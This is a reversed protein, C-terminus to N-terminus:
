ATPMSKIYLDKLENYPLEIEVHNGIVYPVEFSIGLSNETFYGYIGSGYVDSRALHEFSLLENVKLIDETEPDSYMKFVFNKNKILTELKEFDNIVDKLCIKKINKLDINVTYFQRNPHAAGKRDGYGYFVVSLLEENKLTIAYSIELTLDKEDSNYTNFFASMAEFKILENLKSAEADLFQPYVINVDGNIYCESEINEYEKQPFKCGRLHSIDTEQPTNEFQQEQGKSIAFEELKDYNNKDGCSALLLVIVLCLMVMKKLSSM